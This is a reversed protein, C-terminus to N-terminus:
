INNSLQEPTLEPDYGGIKFDEAYISRLRKRQDDNLNEVFSGRSPNAKIPKMGWNVSWRDYDEIRYVTTKHTPLRDITRSVPMLHREALGVELATIMDDISWSLARNIVPGGLFMRRASLFRSLPHRVVAAIASVSSLVPDSIFCHSFVDNFHDHIAMTGYDKMAFDFDGLRAVESIVSSSGCKDWPMFLTDGLVPWAKDPTNM